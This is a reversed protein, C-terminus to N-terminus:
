KNHAAHLAAPPTTKLFNDVKLSANERLSAYYFNFDYTHYSGGPFLAATYGAVEPPRAIWLMGEPGCRAGVVQSQLAPLRKFLVNYDMMPLSGANSTASAPTQDSRWNLPNSCDLKSLGKEAIWHSTDGGELMVNWTLYCGTEAAAECLPIHEFWPTDPITNGVLYAAVLQGALPQGDFLERMLRIGHLTGQSHAVLIVPRGRNHEALYYEFAAKVDGYAFDVAKAVSARDEATWIPMRVSRYRPAFVRGAANFISAQQPLIGWDVIKRHLLNDFGAVWYKGSFAATPHIYFVDAKASAQRDQYGSNKPLWDASDPRDPLAAWYQPQRYDPPSPVPTADFPTTPVSMLWAQLKDNLHPKALWFGGAALCGTLALAILKKM